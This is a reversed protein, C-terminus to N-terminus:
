NNLGPREGYRNFLLVLGVGGGLGLLVAAILVFLTSPGAPVTVKEAPLLSRSVGDNSGLVASGASTARLARLRAALEEVKAKADLYVPHYPGYIASLDAFEQQAMAYSQGVQEAAQKRSFEAAIANAFRAARVPDDATVAIKILYSRLDNTVKTSDILRAVAVDHNDEVIKPEIAAALSRLDLGRVTASAVFRMDTLSRKLFPAHDDDKTTGPLISARLRVDLDRLGAASISRLDAIVRQLFTPRVFRVDRDLGLRTVVTSFFARSRILRAATDVVASADTAAVPLSKTASTTDARIFTPRIVAEGVYRPGTLSLGIAALALAVVATAAILRRHAWVERLAGTAVREYHAQAGDQLATTTRSAITKHKNM